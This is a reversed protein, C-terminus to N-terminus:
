GDIERYATVNFALLSPSPNAAFCDLAATSVISNGGLTISDAYATGVLQGGTPSYSKAPTTVFVSAALAPGSPFVV